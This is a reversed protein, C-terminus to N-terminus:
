ELFITHVGPSLAHADTTTIFVQHDKLGDLVKEQHSLDLESLVDDLLLTPKIGYPSAQDSLLATELLKLAIVITRVEGRSARISAPKDSIEFIVDDRHPGITTYGLVLDRSLNSDLNSMMNSAYNEPDNSNSSKYKIRIDDTGGLQRYYSSLESQLKSILKHRAKIIKESEHALQTNWVFLQSKVGTNDLSNNSKILKNRQVLIRDFKTLSKAIEYDLQGAIGDIYLRRKAPSGTILSALNPEFLVVPLREGIPLRSYKKNDISWKKQTTEETKLVKLSRTHSTSDTNIDIGIALNNQGHKVMDSVTGKFSSGKLLVYLSEIVSTKGSGNPGVIANMHDDFTYSSKIHSRM